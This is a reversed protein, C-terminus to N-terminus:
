RGLARRIAPQLQQELNVSFAVVGDNSRSMEMAIIAYYGAARDIWPTFGFAGPSSGVACGTAPTACELWATLGYRFNYGLSVVPSNGVVVSPYPERLQEDFLNPRLLQQGQYQGRAFVVGLLRAYEDTSARLGGAILPNSTGISNRPATFYAVEGPLGLPGRIQQAFIAGWSAGTAVEAMRAAVHLHVNGYEFRTGPAAILGGSRISEVCEALTVAANFTCSDNTRLGSTFSLLHRLTIAGEPGGWGLVQATTSDLSLLGQDILRFLALGSILKSASAVAVRRDTAFDGYNKAFVRTGDRDYVVVSMGSVTAGANAFATSALRDVEDWAGAAPPAPHGIPPPAPPAPTDDSGGGGCGPLLGIAGALVCALGRMAAIVADTAIPQGNLVAQASM